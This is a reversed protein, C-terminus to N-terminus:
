LHNIYADDYFTLDTLLQSKAGLGNRKASPRYSRKGRTKSGAFDMDALCVLDASARLLLGM